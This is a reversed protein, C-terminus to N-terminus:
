CTLKLFVSEYKEILDILDQAGKINALALGELMKVDECTFEREHWLDFKQAAVREPYDVAMRVGVSGGTHHGLVYVRNVELLTLAADVAHAYDEITPAKPLPDSM